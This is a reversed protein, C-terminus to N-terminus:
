VSKGPTNSSSPSRKEINGALGSSPQLSKHTQSFVVPQKFKEKEEAPTGTQARPIPSTTTNPIDPEISKKNFFAEIKRATKTFVALSTVAAVAIGLPVVPIAGAIAPVAVSLGATVGSGITSIAGIIATHGATIIPASATAITGIVPLHAIVPIVAVAPAGVGSAVALGVGAVIVSGVVLKTTGIAIDKLGQKFREGNLSIVGLGTKVLGRGIQYSGGVIGATVAGVTTVVATSVISIVGIAATGLVRPIFLGIDEWWPDGKGDWLRSFANATRNGVNKIADWVDSANFPYIM